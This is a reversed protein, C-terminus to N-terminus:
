KKCYTTFDSADSVKTNALIHAATSTRSVLFSTRVDSDWSPWKQTEKIKGLEQKDEAEWENVWCQRFSLTQYVPKSHILVLHVNSYPSHRTKFFNDETFFSPYLHNCWSFNRKYAKRYFAVLFFQVESHM